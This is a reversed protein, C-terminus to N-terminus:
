QVIPRRRDPHVHLRSLTLSTLLHRASLVACRECAEVSDSLRSRVMIRDVLSYHTMHTRTDLALRYKLTVRHPARPTVYM